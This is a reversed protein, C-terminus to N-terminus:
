GLFFFGSAGGGGGVTRTNRRRKRDPQPLHNTKKVSPQPSSTRVPSLTPGKKIKALFCPRSQPRHAGAWPGKNPSTLRPKAAVARTRGAQGSGLLRKADADKSPAVTKIGAPKKRPPNNM